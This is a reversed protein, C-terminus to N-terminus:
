AAQKYREKAANEERNLRRLEKQQIKAGLIQINRALVALSVYRKFGHLGHDPCRDLAHNELANIASEVASHSRRAKKFDESDEIAKAEESLRGKRPLIVRDLLESLYKQNKQSHFGKDFSCSTLNPYKGKASSVMEVAIKDDTQKQMVHHHLIFSLQDELICVRLGLEQAVGAKGKSIWETHTEFISFVKEHHPINEHNIVRRCIQDMQREAHGIFHNIETLFLPRAAGMDILIGLDQRIRRIYAAATEIYELHALVKDAQNNSRILKNAKNFLKKIKRLIYESQRWATLELRSFERAILTIAKRMADWLLNIDTPFHVNTEVVFSDCRGHLEKDRKGFLDHGLKVVLENIQNLVEPTLMVLNDKLTQLAYRQDFDFISHGLFERICKHENALELLKDYDFNCNLRITGLVLIKWLDMGPRGNTASTNDPVISELIKFVNERLSKNCYIAQLGMLLQPIEDRSHIDICIKDIDRQGFKLQKEIIKRM